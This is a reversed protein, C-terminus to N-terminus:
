HELFMDTRSLLVLARALASSAMLLVTDPPFREYSALIDQLVVDTLLTEDTVFERKKRINNLMEGTAADLEAAEQDHQAEFAIEDPDM